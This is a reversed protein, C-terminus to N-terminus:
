YLHTKTLTYHLLLSLHGKLAPSLVKVPFSYKKHGWIKIVDMITNIFVWDVPFECFNSISIFTIQNKKKLICLHFETSYLIETPKEAYRKKGEILGNLKGQFTDAHRKVLLFMERPFWFLFLPHSLAHVWFLFLGRIGFYVAILSSFWDGNSKSIQWPSQFIQSDSFYVHGQKWIQQIKVTFLRQNIIASNFHSGIAINARM